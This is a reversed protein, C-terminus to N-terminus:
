NKKCVRMLFNELRLLKYSNFFINLEGDLIKQINSKIEISLRKDKIQEYPNLVYSRFQNGWAIEEREETITLDNKKKQLLKAYLLNIATQKNSHQSREESCTVVTNSPLHTVRVASDTKNVHQGGAGSARFTDIRLDKESIKIEFIKPDVLPLITVSAFSTERTKNFPSIRVLRHIGEECKYSDPDLNSIQLVAQRIGSNTPSLYVLELKKNSFYKQFYKSYMKLLMNTWDEADQGGTGSKLELFFGRKNEPLFFEMVEQDIQHMETEYDLDTKFNLLFEYSEIFKQIKFYNSKEKFYDEYKKLIEFVGM